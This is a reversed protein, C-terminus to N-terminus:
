RNSDKLLKKLHNATEKAHSGTLFIGATFEHMSGDLLTLRLVRRPFGFVRVDELEWLTVVFKEGTAKEPIFVFSGGDSLGALGPGITGFLGVTRFVARVPREEEQKKKEAWTAAGSARAKIRERPAWTAKEEEDAPEIQKPYVEEALMIERADEPNEARMVGRLVRGRGDVAVFRFKM